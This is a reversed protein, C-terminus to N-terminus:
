QVTCRDYFQIEPTYPRPHATWSPCIHVHYRNAISAGAHDVITHVHGNQADLDTQVPTSGDLETCGLVFTGDCMLGYAEVDTVGARALVTLPGSSDSHYHYAGGPAPHANWEDFTFREAAIDDGPAALANFLLVSDLAVGVPGGRYESGSTNVTGDVLGTGITLNRANPTLPIKYTVTQKVLTNPNAHYAGGRDDWPEYNANGSGYYYSRHPPLGRTTVVLDTGSVTMTVCRFLSAYPAPVDAAISTECNDVTLEGTGTDTGADLANSAEDGCAPLAALVVATLTRSTVLSKM